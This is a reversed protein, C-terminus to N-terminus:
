PRSVTWSDILYEVKRSKPGETTTTLGMSSTM